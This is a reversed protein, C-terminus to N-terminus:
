WGPSSEGGRRDGRRRRTIAPPLRPLLAAIARQLLAVDVLWTMLWALAAYRYFPHFFLLAAHQALAMRALLRLRTPGAAFAAALPVLLIANLGVHRRGSGSGALWDALQAGVRAIDTSEFDGQLLAAIARAYTAPPTPLTFATDVSSTFLVLQHGFVWNHLPILLLPALGGIMAALGAAGRNRWVPLAVTAMMVIVALLLNPRLAVALAALLAGGLMRRARLTDAPGAVLVAYSALLAAAGMPDPYGQLAPKLMEVFSGDVHSGLPLNLLLAAAVAWAVPLITRAAVFVLAPWAVLVALYLYNTDGFVINEVARVFRLGPMFYFVPEGGALAGSWDSAMLARAILRGLGEHTLGDDGGAFGRFGALFAPEAVLIVGALGLALWLAPLALRRIELPLLLAVLGLVGGLALVDRVVLTLRVSAPAALSIELPPSPRISLAFIRRGLANAALDVCDPQEHSLRDFRGDAGEWLLEGQWCLRSGAYDPPFQYMLYFPITTRLGRTARATHPDFLMRLPDPAPGYWDYRVENVVGVRAGMADDFDIARVQRSHLPRQLLGDATAAFAEAPLARRRWCGPVSRDCRTAPPYTDDFEAAMIAYVDAPLARSLAGDPGDILFINQGEEIRPDPLLALASRLIAVLVVAGLWWRWGTRVENCLALFIVAILVLIEVPRNLPPGLAVITLGVLAARQGPFGRESVISRGSM